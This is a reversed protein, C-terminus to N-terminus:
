QTVRGVVPCVVIVPLHTVTVQLVVTVLVVLVGVSVEVPVVREGVEDERGGEGPLWVEVEGGVEELRGCIEVGFIKVVVLHRGRDPHLVAPDPHTVRVCLLGVHGLPDRATSVLVPGVQVEGHGTVLLGPVLSELGELLLEFPSYQYILLYFLHVWLIVLALDLQVHTDSM